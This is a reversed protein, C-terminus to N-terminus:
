LNTDLPKKFVLNLKRKLQKIALRIDETCIGCRQIVKNVRLVKYHM